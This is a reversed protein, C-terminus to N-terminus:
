IKGRTGTAVKSAYNWSSQFTTMLEQVDEDRTTMKNLVRLKFTDESYDEDALDRMWGVLSRTGFIGKINKAQAADAVAKLTKAASLAVKYHSSDLHLQSIARQALVEVSPTDMKVGMICRDRLSENLDQTGEYDRNTTFVVITDPHRYIHKGNALEIRGNKELLSNLETLVGPRLVTAAEQIEVLWGNEFARMLESLVFRYNVSGSEAQDILINILRAQIAEFRRSAEVEVEIDTPAPDSMGMVDTWIEDPTMIVWDESTPLHYLSKVKDRVKEQDFAHRFAAATTQTNPKSGNKGCAVASEELIHKIAKLATKDEDSVAWEDMDTFCPYFSGILNASEFYPHMTIKTWPVDFVHALFKSGTTKGSGADGELIINPALPMCEDHWDRKIRTAVRVLREDVVYHEDLQPIMAKESPMLRHTELKCKKRLEELSPLNTAAPAASKGASGSFMLSDEPRLGCLPYMPGALNNISAHTLQEADAAYENLEDESLMPISADTESISDLISPTNDRLVRYLEASIAGLSEAHQLEESCPRPDESLEKMATLFHDQVTFSGGTGGKGMYTLALLILTCYAANSPLVSGANIGSIRVKIPSANLYNGSADTNIRCGSIANSEVEYALVFVPNGKQSSHYEILLTDGKGGRSIGYFHKPYSALAADGDERFMNRKAFIVNASLMPNQGGTQAATYRPSIINVIRTKPDWITSPASPWPAPFKTGPKDFGIIATILQEKSIAM